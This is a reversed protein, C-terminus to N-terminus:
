KITFPTDDQMDRLISIIFNQKAKEISETEKPILEEM